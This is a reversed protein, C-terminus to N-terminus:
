VLGRVRAITPMFLVAGGGESKTSLGDKIRCAGIDSTTGIDGGRLGNVLDGRVAKCGLPGRDCFAEPDLGCVTGLRADISAPSALIM